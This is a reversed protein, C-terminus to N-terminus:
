NIGTSNLIESSATCAALASIYFLKVFWLITTPVSTDIKISPHCVVCLGAILSFLNGTTKLLLSYEPSLNMEKIQLREVATLSVRLVSSSQM